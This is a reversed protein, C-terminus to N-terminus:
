VGCACVLYHVAVRLRATRNLASNTVPLTESSMECNLAMYHRRRIFISTVRIWRSSRFAVRLRTQVLGRLAALRVSPYATLEPNPSTITGDNQAGTAYTQRQRM